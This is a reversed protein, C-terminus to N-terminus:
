YATQQLKHTVICYYITGIFVTIVLTSLSEGTQSMGRRVFITGVTFPVAALLAFILGIEM